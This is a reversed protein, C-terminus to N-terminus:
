FLLWFLQSLGYTLDFWEETWLRRIAKWTEWYSRFDNCQGRLSQVIWSGTTDGEIKAELRTGGWESVRPWKKFVGEERSYRCRRGLTSAGVGPYGLPKKGFIVKEPISAKVMCDSIAKWFRERRKDQKMKKGHIKM